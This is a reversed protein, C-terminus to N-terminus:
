VVLNHRAIIRDLRPRSVGLIEAARSKNRGAQALVRQVHARQIAELSQDDGPAATEAVQGLRLSELSLAAGRALVCARALANELERVNGPWEHALLEGMVEGPIYLERDLEKAQREVFHTALLPIDGRRERLPPITIEVVRLRFYLDERFRKEKILREIPRHTAAIVRARTPRATESGVPHFEREQLVRLLKAQFGPTTDGIEDLFITGDAALEFRGKRDSVAGTFSGRVHGFLESELLSAPMATCNVAVFPADPQSANRHILRAILEKGTGTEGRILVSTRSTAISGITKYIEVMRADMGVLRSVPAAGGNGDSHGPTRANEAICRELVADLADLDLPKQLYDYAGKKMADIAGQMDGFATMVTVPVGTRQKVHELLAFGSMGPMRVDTLILEPNTVHLVALAREASEVATVSYGSRSLHRVLTERHSDDDEVVLIRADM